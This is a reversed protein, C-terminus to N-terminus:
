GLEIIERRYASTLEIGDETVVLGDEFRLGYEGDNLWIDM